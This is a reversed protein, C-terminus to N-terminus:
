PVSGSPLIPHGPAQAFQAIIHAIEAPLQRGVPEPQWAFGGARGLTSTRGFVARGAERELFTVVSPHYYQRALALPTQGDRNVITANAGRALLLKVTSLNGNRAALHLPTNGERNRLNINAGYDLLLKVIEAHGQAAAWHLATMGYWDQRNIDFLPQPPQSPITPPLIAYSALLKRLHALLSQAQPSQPQAQVQTAINEIITKQPLISLLQAVHKTDGRAAAYALENGGFVANLVQRAYEPNSISLAREAFRQLQEETPITAGNEILMRAINTLHNALALILATDGHNSARNINAGAGILVRVTDTHGTNVAWMLATHGGNTAHNVDAGADILIRVIETDGTQAASILATNGDNNAHNVDAGHEILLRVMETDTAAMLATNGYRDTYNIDAGAKLAAYVAKLDGVDVAKSLAQNAVLNVQKPVMGQLLITHNMPLAVAFAIVLYAKQHGKQLIKIM